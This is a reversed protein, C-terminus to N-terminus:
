QGSAVRKEACDSCYVATGYLDSTGDQLVGVLDVAHEKGCIPCATFVNSDEIFRKQGRKDKLYFM